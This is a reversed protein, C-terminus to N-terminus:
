SASRQLELVLKKFHEGREEFCNYMDWSASAPSLLITDGPQALEFGLRLCMGLDECLTIRDFGAEEAEAKFREKTAGLLLLHAVKGNFDKVFPRFDSEKDYGGAILFINPDVAEIAKISADPNTGKSDNIFKVGDIIAVLELRHEVGRFHRLTKSIIEPDIGGCYAIAVAALANELNHKGPIQLEDTGIFSIPEGNVAKDRIVIRGDKVFAGHPLESVRSFPFLQPAADAVMTVVLPDDANYILFDDKAQNEFVRTKAAIYADMTKHRDLHDPTLNLIASVKPKFRDITELQFSSVETIFAAGDKAKLASNVAATGINGTIYSKVGANRYIEGVLTTTTTKGNTGTIAVFTDPTIEYALELDGIIRAGKEAADKVLPLDVPVGPSMVLLDWPSASDAPVDAGNLYAPIRLEEIKKYLEPNDWEIDKADFVSVDAGVRALAKLAAEGSKGLGMILVKKNKYDKLIAM